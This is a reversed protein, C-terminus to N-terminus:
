LTFLYKQRKGVIYTKNTIVLNGAKKTINTFHWMAFPREKELRRVKMLYPLRYNLMRDYLQILNKQCNVAFCNWGKSIM